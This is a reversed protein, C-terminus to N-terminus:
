LLNRRNKDTSIDTAQMVSHALDDLRDVPLQLQSGLEQKFDVMRM